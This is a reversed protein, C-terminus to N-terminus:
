INTKIIKFHKTHSRNKIQLIYSGLSLSSINIRNIDNPSGITHKLVLQGQMSFIFVDTKSLGKNPLTINISSNAPNPFVSVEEKNFKDLSLVCSESYSAMPDKTWGFTSESYTINDVCIIDLNPNNRSDMTHIKTNNGNRLDLLNLNNNEFRLTALNPVNKLDLEELQNDYSWFIELLNSSTPMTISTLNNEHCIIQYLATNTTLNLNTLENNHCTLHSLALNTSINLTALQNEQCALSVLSTCAAINLSSIQNDQCDLTELKTNFTLDLDTIMNSECDLLVLDVFASIGTLDSIGCDTVNLFPVGEADSNLINGTMGNTDIGISILKNEFAPDPISTTQSFSWQFALGVLLIISLLGKNTM